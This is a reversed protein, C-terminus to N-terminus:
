RVTTTTEKITPAADGSPLSATETTSTETKITALGNVDTTQVTTQATTPAPIEPQSPAVVSPPQAAAAGLTIAVTAATVCLSKFM